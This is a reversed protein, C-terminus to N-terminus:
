TRLMRTRARHITLFNSVDIVMAELLDGTGDDPAGDPRTFLLDGPLVHLLGLNAALDIGPASAFSLPNCANLVGEIQQAPPRQTLVFARGSGTSNLPAVPHLPHCSELQFIAPLHLPRNAISIPVLTLQTTAPADTM